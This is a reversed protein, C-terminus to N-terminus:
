RGLLDRMRASFGALLDEIEALGGNAQKFCECGARWDAHEVMEVGSAIARTRHLGIQIPSIPQTFRFAELKSAGIRRSSHRLDRKNRTMAEWILLGAYFDRTTLAKADGDDWVAEAQPYFLGDPMGYLKLGEKLVFDDESMAKIQLEFSPREWFEWAIDLRHIQCDDILIGDRGKIADSIAKAYNDLDGYADTEMLTQQDLRLTVTLQVFNSFLFRNGLEARL